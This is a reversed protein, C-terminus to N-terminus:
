TVISPLRRSLSYVRFPLKFYRLHLYSVCDVRFVNFAKCCLAQTAFKEDPVKKNGSLLSKNVGVEIPHDYAAYTGPLGMAM